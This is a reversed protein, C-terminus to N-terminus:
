FQVSFDQVFTKKGCNPCKLPKRKGFLSLRPLKGDARHNCSFCKMPVFEGPFPPRFLKHNM